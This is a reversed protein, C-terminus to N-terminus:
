GSPARALIGRLAPALVHVPVRDNPIAASPFVRREVQRLRDEARTVTEVMREYSQRADAGFTFVGHKLLIVGAVGPNRRYIESVAKALAFGPMIYPVLAMTAGYLAACIEAGDPQDTLALIADAHTHDVFRHPLFAHLLTEVSPMPANADLLNARQANVMEEDSLRDLAELRRLPALRVAPLGPPEIQAMDWGSGKICLVDIEEGTVDRRRTKLSTNGGGHLVLRPDAGLLRTTYVRLALERAVGAAGYRRVAAEAESESWLSKM